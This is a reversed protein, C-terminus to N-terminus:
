EEYESGIPYPHELKEIIVSESICNKDARLRKAVEEAHEESTCQCSYSDTAWESHTDRYWFDYTVEYTIIDNM